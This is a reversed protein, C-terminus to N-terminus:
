WWKSTKHTFYYMYCGVSPDQSYKEERKKAEKETIREGAYECLFDGKSFQQCTVVGRGKEEVDM